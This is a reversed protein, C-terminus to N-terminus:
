ARVVADAASQRAARAGRSGDGLLTQVMEDLQAGVAVDIAGVDSRVVCGGRRVSPDAVIQVSAGAVPDGARPAVAVAHDDPHLHISATATDALRDLAVRAMAVLLEPDLSVERLVIRKAIALALEVVQRETRQIVDARLAQLEEITQALRRLMADARASAAEAGAREGQAYGKAFADREIADPDPPLAAAPVARVAARPPPAAARRDDGGWDFPAPSATGALRRARSSM